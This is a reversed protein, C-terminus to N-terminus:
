HLPHPLSTCWVNWSRGGRQWRQISLTDDGVRCLLAGWGSFM